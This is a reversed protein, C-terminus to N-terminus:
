EDDPADPADPADSADSALARENERKMLRLKAMREEFLAEITAGVVPKTSAVTASVDMASPAKAEQATRLPTAASCRTASSTARAGGSGGGGGGINRLAARLKGSDVGALCVAVPRLRVTQSQAIGLERAFRSLYDERDYLGWLVLPEIDVSSADGGIEPFQRNKWVFRDRVFDNDPHAWDGHRLALKHEETVTAILDRESALRHSAFPISDYAENRLTQSVEGSASLM